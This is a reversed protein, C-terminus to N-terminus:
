SMYGVFRLHLAKETDTELKFTASRQCETAAVRVVFTMPNKDDIYNIGEAFTAAPASFRLQNMHNWHSAIEVIKEPDDSRINFGKEELELPLGGVIEPMPSIRDVFVRCNSLVGGGANKIGIRVASFVHEGRLETIEYPFGAEFGIEIQPPAKVEDEKSEARTAKRRTHIFGLIGGV